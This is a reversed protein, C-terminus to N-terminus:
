LLENTRKDLFVLSVFVTNFGGCLRKVGFECRALGVTARKSVTNSVFGAGGGRACDTTESVMDCIVAKVFALGLAAFASPKVM